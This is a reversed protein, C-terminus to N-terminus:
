LFNRNILSKWRLQRYRYFMQAYLWVAPTLIGAEIDITDTYQCQNDAISDVKIEHNWQPILGGGEQTFQRRQSDNVETFALEHKWGPIVGFFMLRTHETRGQVWEKPFHESDKFGLVGKTVYLLTKSQKVASWAQDASTNLTSSICAKM